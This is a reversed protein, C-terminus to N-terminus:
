MLIGSFMQIKNNLMRVSGNYYKRSSAIEDEIQILDHSLKLFNESTKLEPYNESILMIESIGQTLRENIDIKKNVSMTDYTNSRITSVESIAKEEHEAYKKVTEVLNPILDWRKKLYVDMTSFAEKVINNIKVLKNYIVLIYIVLLVIVGIIIYGTM